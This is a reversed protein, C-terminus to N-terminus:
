EKAIIIAENIISEKLMEQEQLTPNSWEGFRDTNGEVKLHELKDANGFLVESGFKYVRFAREMSGSFKLNVKPTERGQIDRFENYGGQLFMSKRQKGNKFNGKNTKGIPKFAAKRIFENKSFYGQKDSYTGISEGDSNEGKNFVRDKWEAEFEVMSQTAIINPMKEDLNRAIEQLRDSLIEFAM